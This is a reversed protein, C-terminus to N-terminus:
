DCARPNQCIGTLILKCKEFNLTVGAELLRKGYLHQDHEEQTKGHVLLDNMM